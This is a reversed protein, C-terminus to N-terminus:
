ICLPVRGFALKLDIGKQIGPMNKKKPMNKKAYKKIGVARFPAFSLLHRIPVATSCLVDM